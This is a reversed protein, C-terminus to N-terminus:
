VSGGNASPNTFEGTTPDYIWGISVNVDDPVAVLMCNSDPSTDKSPDAMIVNEVIYSILNVVASVM